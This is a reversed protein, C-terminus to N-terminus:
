SALAQAVKTSQSYKLAERLMGKQNFLRWVHASDDSVKAVLIPAKKPFVILTSDSYDIGALLEQQHFHKTEMVDGTILSTVQVYTPYLFCVHFQWLCCQISHNHEIFVLQTMTLPETSQLKCFAFKQALLFGVGFPEKSDATYSVSISFLHSSFELCKPRNALTQKLTASSSWQHVKDSAACFVMFHKKLKLIALDTVESDVTTVHALAQFESLRGDQLTEYCAHWLEGDINGFM